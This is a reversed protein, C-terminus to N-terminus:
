AVAEYRFAEQIEETPRGYEAVLTDLSDGAKFREFVDTTPIRSGALVPRGFALRPDIVVLRPGDAAGARTFPYLRIALGRADRDIRQLHADLMERMALQGEQSLNVLSGLRRTFLDTGDTLM